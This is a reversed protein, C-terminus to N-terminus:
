MAFVSYIHERVIVAKLKCCVSVTSNSLSDGCDVKPPLLIQMLSTIVAKLKCCVSVTSNSLSDGCDVRPPLLIQMLSTIVSHM